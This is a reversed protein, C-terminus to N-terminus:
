GDDEEEEIGDSYGTDNLWDRIDALVAHLRELDMRIHEYMSELRTTMDKFRHWELM